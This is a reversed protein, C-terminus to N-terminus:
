ALNGKKVASVFNGWATDDFVVAPGAPRKWDRVPLGQHPARERPAPPRPTPGAARRRDHSAGRRDPTRARPM